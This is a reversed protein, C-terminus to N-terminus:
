MKWSTVRVCDIGISHCQKMLSSCDCQFTIANVFQHHGNYCRIINWVICESVTGNNGRKCVFPTKTGFGMETANWYKSETAVSVMRCCNREREEIKINAM